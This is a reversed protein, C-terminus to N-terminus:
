ALNLKKKLEFIVEDKPKSEKVRMYGDEEKILGLLELEKIILPCMEKEINLHMRLVVAIHDKKIMGRFTQNDIRSHIWYYFSLPIKNEKFEKM